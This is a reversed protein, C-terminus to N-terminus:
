KLGIQREVEDVLSQSESMLAERTWHSTFCRTEIDMLTDLDSVRLERLTMPPADLPAVSGSREAERTKKWHFM